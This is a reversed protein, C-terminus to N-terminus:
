DKVKNTSLKGNRILHWLWSQETDITWGATRTM